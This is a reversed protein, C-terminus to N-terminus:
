QASFKLFIHFMFSCLLSFLLYNGLLIISHFNKFCHYDKAAEAGGPPSRIPIHTGDVACFASTCQWMKEMLNVAQKTEEVTSPFKVHHDWLNAVILDAVENCIERITSKARGTMQELTFCYDGRGYRYLAIALREEPSIPAEVLTKRELGHRINVLVYNFTERSVRLAEKFRKNSYNYLAEFWGGNRDVRRPRKVTLERPMLMQLLLSIIRKRRREEMQLLVMLANNRKRRRLRSRALMQVFIVIMEDTKEDKILDM